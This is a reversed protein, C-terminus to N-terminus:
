ILTAMCCYYHKRSIGCYTLYTLFGAFLCYCNGHKKAYRSHTQKTPEFIPQDCVDVTTQGPNVKNETNTIIDMCHNQFSLTHGEERLLPLAATLDKRCKKYRKQFTHYSTWGHNLAVTTDLWEIIQQVAENLISSDLSRIDMPDNYKPAYYM